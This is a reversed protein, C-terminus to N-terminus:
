SLAGVFVSLENMSRGTAIVILQESNDPARSNGSEGKYEILTVVLADNLFGNHSEPSFFETFTLLNQVQSITRSGCYREYVM